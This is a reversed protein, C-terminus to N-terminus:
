GSTLFRVVGQENEVPLLLAGPEAEKDVAQLLEQRRGHLVMMADYQHGKQILFLAGLVASPQDRRRCVSSDARSDLMPVM